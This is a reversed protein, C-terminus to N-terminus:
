PLTKIYYNQSEANTYIKDISIDQEFKDFDQNIYRGVTSWVSSYVIKDFKTIYAYKDLIYQTGVFNYYDYGFHDLFQQSYRYVNNKSNGSEYGLIGNALVNPFSLIHLIQIDERKNNILWNMGAIEMNTLQLSPRYINPSDFLSYISLYSCLLILIFFSIKYYINKKIIIVYYLPISVFIPLLIEIYGLFRRDWQGRGLAITGPLGILYAFYILGDFLFIVFLLIFYDKHPIMNKKKFIVYISFLSIFFLIMQAGFIKFLLIITNYGSVNLKNISEVLEMYKTSGSSSIIQQWAIQINLNFQQHSLIWTTFIVILLLLIRLTYSDYINENNNRHISYFWKGLEFILLSLILMFASLPHFMPYITLILILLIRYSNLNARFYLYYVLPLLFISWGNPSLIVNYGGLLIIIGVIWTSIIQYQKNKFLSTLLYILLVFYLSIIGTSLNAVLSIPLNTVNILQAINIFIIPYKNNVNYHYNLLVDKIMGLYDFNDGRWSIYGRIYPMYLLTIKIILLITLILIFINYNFKNTILTYIHLSSIIYFIIIITLFIVPIYNYINLEYGLAPNNWALSITYILLIMLIIYFLKTLCNLYKIM